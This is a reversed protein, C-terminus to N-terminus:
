PPLEVKILENSLVLNQKLREWLFLVVTEKSVLFGYIQTCRRSCLEVVSIVIQPSMERIRTRMTNVQILIMQITSM